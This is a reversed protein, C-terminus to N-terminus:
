LEKELRDKLHRSTVFKGEKCFFPSDNITFIISMTPEDITIPPMAEPHEFDAVTDGIEFGEIGNFACIEGAHVESVRTRGLGEFVFLEKIRSKTISGDRKVLCIPQNEKLTGRHLRGIAM